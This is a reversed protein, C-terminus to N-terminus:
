EIHVGLTIEYVQYYGEYITAFKKYTTEVKNGLTKGQVWDEVSFKKHNM